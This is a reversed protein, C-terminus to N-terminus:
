SPTDLVIEKISSYMTGPDSLHNFHKVFYGHPDMLYIFSSHDVLYGDDEAGEQHRKSYFVKFNQAARAIETDSGTLGIISSHFHALYSKMIGQDDRAPDVTIFIPQVKGKLESDKEMMVMLNSINNLAMPCIDPCYTFGFYILTFKGLFDQDSVLLGESDHLKFEGGITAKGHGEHLKVVAQSKSDRLYQLYVFSGLIIISTVIAVIYKKMFLLKGVIHAIEHQVCLCKSM